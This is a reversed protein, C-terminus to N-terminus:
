LRACPCRHTNTRDKRVGTASPTLIWVDKEGKMIPCMNQPVLPSNLVRDFVSRGWLFVSNSKGRINNDSFKRKTHFSINNQYLDGVYTLNNIYSLPINVEVEWSLQLPTKKDAWLNLRQQQQSSKKKGYSITQRSPSLNKILFSCSIGSALVIQLYINKRGRNTCM